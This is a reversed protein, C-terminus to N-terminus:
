EFEGVNVGVSDDFPGCYPTHVPPPAADLMAQMTPLSDAINAPDADAIGAADVICDGKWDGCAPFRFIQARGTTKRIVAGLAVLRRMSAQMTRESMSVGDLITQVKLRSFDRGRVNNLVLFTYLWKDTSNVDIRAAMARCLDFVTKAEM